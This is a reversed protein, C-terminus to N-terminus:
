LENRAERCDNCNCGIEHMCCSNKFKRLHKSVNRSDHSNYGCGRPCAIRDADRVRASIGTISGGSVIGITKKGELARIDRKTKMASAALKQQLTPKKVEVHFDKGAEPWEGFKPKSAKNANYSDMRTSRETEIAERMTMKYDIRSVRDQFEKSFMSIRAHRQRDADMDPNEIEVQRNYDREGERKTVWPDGRRAFAGSSSPMQPKFGKFFDRKAM